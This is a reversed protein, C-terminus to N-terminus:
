HLAIMRESWDEDCEHFGIAGLKQEGSLKYTGLKLAKKDWTKTEKEWDVGTANTSPSKLHFAKEDFAANRINYSKCAGIRKKKVCRLSSADESHTYCMVFRAITSAFIRIERYGKKLLGSVTHDTMSSATTCVFGRPNFPTTKPASNWSDKKKAGFFTSQMGRGNTFTSCKLPSTSGSVASQVSKVWLKYQAISFCAGVMMNKVHQNPVLFYNDNKCQACAPVMKAGDRIWIQQNKKCFRHARPVNATKVRNKAYLKPPREISPDSGPAM